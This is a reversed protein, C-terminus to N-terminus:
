AGRRAPRALTLRCNAHRADNVVLGEVVVADDDGVLGEAIGLHLQCVTAPDAVATSEFPCSRLVIDSHDPHPEVDPDFGQGAMAAAVLAIVDDGDDGDPPDRDEAADGARMRRGARRGVERPTDGTRIVESLLLSLREYPGAVGWRSDAAPDVTYLLRPRGPGGAAARGEVVLGAAVLTALHARIANHNLGFRATLEAVDVPGRAAAIHRFIAHRTPNGIARAQDQM